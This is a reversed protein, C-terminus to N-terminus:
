ALFISAGFVSLDIGQAPRDKRLLIKKMETFGTAYEYHTAAAHVRGTIIEQVPILEVARNDDARTLYRETGRL